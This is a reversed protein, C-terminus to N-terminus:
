PQHFARIFAFVAAMVIVIAGTALVLQDALIRRM